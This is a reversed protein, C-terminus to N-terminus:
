VKFLRNKIGYKSSGKVRFRHDVNVFLVKLGFGKYLAPMFRHIGDFFEFKLFKSKSFVKLGCASDKCDDKLIISRIYNAIRSSIRKIFNDKRNKRIGTILYDNGHKNYLELMKPIDEPNNQLDGDITIITDYNANKIGTLIAYSQGKNLNHRFYKVIDPNKKNLSIVKNLTQDTSGDDVFIIEYKDKQIKKILESYIEDINDKENLVTVIISFM